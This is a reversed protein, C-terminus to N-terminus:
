KPWVNRRFKARDVWRPRYIYTTQWSFNAIKSWYRAINSFIRVVSMTVTSFYYSHTVAIVEFSM